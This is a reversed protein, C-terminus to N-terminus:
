DLGLGWGGFWSSKQSNGLNMSKVSSMTELEVLGENEFPKNDGTVNGHNSPSTTFDFVEGGYGTVIHSPSTNLRSSSSIMNESEDDNGRFGFCPEPAVCVCCRSPEEKRSENEGLNSITFLEDRVDIEAFELDREDSSLVAIRDRMYDTGLGDIAIDSLTPTREMYTERRTSFTDRSEHTLVHTPPQFQEKNTWPRDDEGNISINSAADSFTAELKHRILVELRKPGIKGRRQKSHLTGDLSTHERLKSTNATVPEHAIDKPVIASVPQTSLSTVHSVPSERQLVSPLPASSPSALRGAPSQRLSSTKVKVSNRASHNDYSFKEMPGIIAQRSSSTPTSVPVIISSLPPFENRTAGTRVCRVPAGGDQAALTDVDDNYSDLVDEPRSFNSSSAFTLLRKIEWVPTRTSGHDQWWDGVPLDDKWPGIRTTGDKLVVTAKLDNRKSSEFNGFYLFPLGVGNDTKICSLPDYNNRWINSQPLWLQRAYGQLHGESWQGVLIILDFSLFVGFGQPKDVGSRCKAWGGLYMDGNPYRLVPRNHNETIQYHLETNNNTRGGDCRWWECGLVRADKLSVWRSSPLM